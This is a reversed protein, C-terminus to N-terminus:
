KKKKKPEAVHLLDAVESKNLKGDHNGDARNFAADGQICESREISGNKNADHAKIYLESPDSQKKKGAKGKASVVGPCLIGLVIAVIPVFSKKM